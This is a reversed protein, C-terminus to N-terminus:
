LGKLTWSTDNSGGSISGDQCARPLSSIQKFLEFLGPLWLTPFAFGAACLARCLATPTVVDLEGFTSM